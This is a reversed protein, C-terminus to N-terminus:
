ILSAFDPMKVVPQCKDHKSMVAPQGDSGYNSNDKEYEISTISCAKRNDAEDLNCGIRVRDPYSPGDWRVGGIIRNKSNGSINRRLQISQSRSGEM